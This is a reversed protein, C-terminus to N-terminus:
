LNSVLEDDWPPVVELELITVNKTITPQALIQIPVEAKIKSDKTMVSGMRALLDAEENQESPIKVISFKKPTARMNQVRSLYLKLKEGKAEFEGQIHGVIVQSDSRLEIYKAGMEQAIKLGAIIAKYEAENNTVKFELRLSSCLRKGSLYKYSGRRWRQEKYILWGCLNNM